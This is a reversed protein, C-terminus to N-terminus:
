NPKLELGKFKNTTMKESEPRYGCERSRGMQFGGARGEGPPNM